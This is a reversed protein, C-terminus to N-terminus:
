DAFIPNPRRGAVPAPDAVNILRRIDDTKFGIAAPRRIGPLVVVDYLEEVAGVIQLWHVIDGSRLDVVLVGCMPAVGRDALAQELGLGAFTRSGRPLSIGMVAFDNIFALGRLYGRCLAVREFRGAKLDAYGFYGNGSDHLWLRDRHLRPSHPMSLGTLVADGTAIDLVAGGDGRHERWGDAMDTRAVVTVYRPAGDALALGNLHCRDEAALKSIFPPTWVSAFSHTESPTALCSFLANAFMIRGDRDVAVDHIDLDGTVYGVRPVFLADYTEGRETYRGVNTFRWLQYLSSMLLTDGHLHLGMCRAFTREFISVRGDPKLGVLFLKNARYTTFAISARQEALWSAFQRSPNLELAPSPSNV